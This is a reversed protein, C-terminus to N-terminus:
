EDLLRQIAAAPELPGLEERQLNEVLSVEMAKRDDMDRLVVPVKDIGAKLAARLRREGAVLRYTSGVRRVILPQLVGHEKLSAALEDIKAEDFVQRPQM